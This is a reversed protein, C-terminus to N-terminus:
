KGFSFRDRMKTCIEMKIPHQGLKMYMNIVKNHWVVSSYEVCRPLPFCHLVGVPSNQAAALSTWRNVQTIKSGSETMRRAPSPKLTQHIVTDNRLLPVNHVRM